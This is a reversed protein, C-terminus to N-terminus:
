ACKLVFSISTTTWQFSPWKHPVWWSSIGWLHKCTIYINHSPHNIAAQLSLCRLTLRRSFISSILNGGLTIEYCMLTHSGLWDAGAFYIVKKKAFSPGTGCPPWAQRPWPMSGPFSAEQGRGMQLLRLLMRLQRQREECMWRKSELEIWVILQTSMWLRQGLCQQSWPVFCSHSKGEFQESNALASLVAHGGGDNCSQFRRVPLAQDEPLGLPCLPYLPTFLAIPEQSLSPGPFARSWSCKTKITTRPSEEVDKQKKELDLTFPMWAYSGEKDEGAEWCLETHEEHLCLQRGWQVGNRGVRSPKFFVGLLYNNFSQFLGFLGRDPVFPRMFTTLHNAPRWDLPLSHGKLIRLKKPWRPQLSLCPSSPLKLDWKWHGSIHYWKSMKTVVSLTAWSIMPGRPGGLSRDKGM